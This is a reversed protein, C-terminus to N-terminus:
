LPWAEGDEFESEGTAWGSDSEEGSGVRCTYCCEQEYDFYDPDESCRACVTGTCRCCTNVIEVCGCFGRDCAACSVVACKRCIDRNGLDDFSESTADDDYGAELVCGSAGTCGLRLYSSGTHCLYCWCSQFLRRADDHMLPTVRENLAKNSRALRPLATFFIRTDSRHSPTLLEIIREVVEVPLAGLLDVDSRELELLRKAM